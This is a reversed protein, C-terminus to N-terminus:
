PTNATDDEFEQDLQEVQDLGEEDFPTTFWAELIELAVTESVFRLSLALINADNWTRALRATEADRCLAARAGPVHNAAMAVGTGSWCCIIAADVEEDAVREGADLGIEAWRWKQDEEVLHGAKLVRHGHAVLWQEIPDTLTTRKDSALLIKM